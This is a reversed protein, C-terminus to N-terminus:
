RHRALARQGKGKGVYFVRGDLPNVYSYVYYGRKPAVHGFCCDEPKGVHFFLPASKEDDTARVVESVEACGIKRAYLATRDALERVVASALYKTVSLKYHITLGM